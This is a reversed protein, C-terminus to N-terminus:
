PKGRAIRVSAHMCHNGMALPTEPRTEITLVVGERKAEQILALAKAYIVNAAAQNM